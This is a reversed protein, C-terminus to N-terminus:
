KKCKMCNLVRCNPDDRPKNACDYVDCLPQVLLQDNTTKLFDMGRKSLDSVSTTVENNNGNNSESMVVRDGTANAWVNKNQFKYNVPEYNSLFCMSKGSMADEICGDFMKLKDANNTNNATTNLKERLETSSMPRSVDLEPENWSINNMKVANNFDLNDYNFEDYNSAVINNNSM